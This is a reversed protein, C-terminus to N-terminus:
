VYITLLDFILPHKNDIIQIEKEKKSLNKNNNDNKLNLLNYLNGKKIGRKEKKMNKKPKPPNPPDIRPDFPEFVLMYNRIPKLRKMSFYILIFIQIKKRNM